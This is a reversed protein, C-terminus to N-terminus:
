APGEWCFGQFVRPDFDAMAEDWKTKDLRDCDGGSFKRSCYWYLLVRLSEIDACTTRTGGGSLGIGSALSDVLHYRVSPIGGGNTRVTKCISIVHEKFFFTAATKLHPKSGEILSIFEGLHDPDMVNGGAVGSFYDQKLLNRDVLYDHVDSPIILAHGGLGLKGRIAKLVPICDRDIVQGIADDTIGGTNLHHCAVLASIVTCGNTSGSTRGQYTRLTQVSIRGKKQLAHYADRYEKQLVAMPKRRIQKKPLEQSGHLISSGSDFAFDDSFKSGNLFGDEKPPASPPGMIESYSPPAPTSSDSMSPPPLPPPLAGNGIYEDEEDESDSDLRFRTTSREGSPDKPIRLSSISTSEQLMQLKQLASLQVSASDTSTVKQSPRGIKAARRKIDEMKLAEEKERQQAMKKTQQLFEQQKRKAEAVERAQRETEEKDMWTVINELKNIVIEVQKQHKVGLQYHRQYYNHKPIADICFHCYRKGYLYAKDVNKTLYSEEFQAYTKDAAEYYRLIPFFNSVAPTGVQELLQARRQASVAHKDAVVM